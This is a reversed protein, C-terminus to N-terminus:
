FRHGFGAQFNMASLKIARDATSGDWRTAQLRLTCNRGLSLLFGGGGGWLRARGIHLPHNAAYANASLHKLHGEGVVTLFSIPTWVGELHIRFDNGNSDRTEYLFLGGALDQNKLRVIETIEAKLQIREGQLHVSSQVFAQKAHQFIVTGDLRDTLYVTAMVSIRYVFRKWTYDMGFTMSAEDGPKYDSLGKVPEYAGKRFYGLGLSLSFHGSQLAGSITGGLDLGQGLTRVPFNLDNRSLQRALSAEAEDLARKGTPMTTYFSILGKGWLNWVGSLHTDLTTHVEQSTSGSQQVYIVASRINVSGGAFPIRYRLPSVWQRIQTSTGGEKLTVQHLYGGFLSGGLAPNSWSLFLIFLCTPKM